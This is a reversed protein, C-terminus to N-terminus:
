AGESSRTAVASMTMSASPGHLVYARSVGERIIESMRAIVLKFDRELTDTARDVDGAQFSTAIERIGALVYNFRAPAELDILRVYHTRDM